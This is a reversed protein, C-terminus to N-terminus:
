LIGTIKDISMRDIFEFAASFTNIDRFEDIEDGYMDYLNGSLRDIYEGYEESEELFLTDRNAYEETDYDDIGNQSEDDSCDIIWCFMAEFVVIVYMKRYMTEITSFVAKDHASGLSSFMRTIKKKEEAVFDYDSNRLKRQTKLRDYIVSVRASVYTDIVFRDISDKCVLVVNVKEKPTLPIKFLSDFVHLLVCAPLIASLNDM